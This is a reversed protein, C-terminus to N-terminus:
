LNSDFLNVVNAKFNEFLEDQNQANEISLAIGLTTRHKDYRNLPVLTMNNALDRNARWILNQETVDQIIGISNLDLLCYLLLVLFVHSAVLISLCNFYQFSGRHSHLSFTMSAMPMYKGVSEFLSQRRPEAENEKAVLQSSAEDAEVRSNNLM